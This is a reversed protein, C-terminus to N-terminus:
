PYSRPIGLEFLLSSTDTVEVSTHPFILWECLVIDDDAGILFGANLGPGPPFSRRPGAFWDTEFVLILSVPGRNILSRENSSTAIHDAMADVPIGSCVKLPQNLFHHGVRDALVCIPDEPNHIVSTSVM